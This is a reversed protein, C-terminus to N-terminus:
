SNTLSACFVPVEANCRQAEFLIPDAELGLEGGAHDHEAHLTFFSVEDILFYIGASSVKSSERPDQHNGSAGVLPSRQLSPTASYSTDTCSIDAREPSVLIFVTKIVWADTSRGSAKSM